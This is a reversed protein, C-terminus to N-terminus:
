NGRTCFGSTSGSIHNFHKCMGCSRPVQRNLDQDIRAIMDPYLFAIDPCAADTLEHPTGEGETTGAGGTIAEIDKDKIEAM